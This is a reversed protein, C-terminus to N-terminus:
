ECEGVSPASEDVAGRMAHRGCSVCVFDPVTRSPRDAHPREPPRRDRNARWVATGADVIGFPEGLDLQAVAGLLGRGAVDVIQGYRLGGGCDPCAFDDHVTEDVPAAGLLGDFWYGAWTELDPLSDSGPAVLVAFRTGTRDAVRLRHIREGESTVARRTVLELEITLRGREVLDAHTATM